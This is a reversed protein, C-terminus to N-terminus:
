PIEYIKADIMRLDDGHSVQSIAIMLSYRQHTKTPIEGLVTWLWRGESCEVKVLRFEVLSMKDFAIQRGTRKTYHDRPHVITCGVRVQIAASSKAALTLMDAKTPPTFAVTGQAPQYTNGRVHKFQVM